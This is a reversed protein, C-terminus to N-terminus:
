RPRRPHAARRADRAGQGGRCHLNDPAAPVEVLPPDSRQLRRRVPDTLLPGNRRVRSTSTPASAHCAQAGNRHPPRPHAHRDSTRQPERPASATCHRDPRRHGDFGTDSPGDRDPSLAAALHAALQDMTGGWGQAMGEHSADFTREEEDSADLAQWHLKLLTGGHQESFSTTSLTSLPWNPAMPHRTVGGAADSFQVVVVLRQPAVIERFTWKGWMPAGDPARLGYHFAGGPRLDLTGEAMEFGKPGMWRRLQELQTFAAFVLERPADFSRTLVFPRGTREVGAPM